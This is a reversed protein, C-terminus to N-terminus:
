QENMTSRQHSSSRRRRMKDKSLNKLRCQSLFASSAASSDKTSFDKNFMIQVNCLACRCFERWRAEELLCVYIRKNWIYWIVSEPHVISNHVFKSPKSLVWSAIKKQSEYVEIGSLSKGQTEIILWYFM